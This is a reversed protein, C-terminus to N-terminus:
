FAGPSTRSLSADLTQPANAPWITNGNNKYDASDIDAGDYACPSFIRASFPPRIVSAALTDYPIIATPSTGSAPAITACSFSTGGKVSADWGLVNGWSDRLEVEPLGTVDSLATADATSHLSTGDHSLLFWNSRSPQLFLGANGVVCSMGFTPNPDVTPFDMHLTVKSYFANRLTTDLSDLLTSSALSADVDIDEFSIQAYLDDNKGSSSTWSSTDWAPNWASSDLFPANTDASPSAAQSYFIQGSALTGTPGAFTGDPGASIYLMKPSANDRVPCYQNTSFQETPVYVVLMAPHNWPDLIFREDSTLGRLESFYSAGGFGPANVSAAQLTPRIATQFTGLQYFTGAGVTQSNGVVAAAPTPLFSGTWSTSNKRDRLVSAYHARAVEKLDKAVARFEQEKKWGTVKSQLNLLPISLLTIIGIVLLLEVLSFGDSRRRLNSSFALKTLINM